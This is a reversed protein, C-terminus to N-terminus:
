GLVWTSLGTRKKIVIYMGTSSFVMSAATAIATGTIGWIPTFIFNLLVIVIMKLFAFLITVKENKTTISFNGLPGFAISIFQGIAIITLATQGHVFAPGLFSLVWKGCFVIVLFLPFSMLTVGRTIKTILKQLKERDNLAHLRSISATSIQNMMVQFIAISVAIRDAGSYIGVQSADKFFGLLLIDLKSNLSSLLTLLLLSKLSSKWVVSNYQPKIGEMKTTRFFVIAIFIFAAIFSIDRALVANWINFQFFCILLVLFFVPKIINDPLFSLVTKHQSRLWASYYNMFCYFPIAVVAYLIPFTYPSSVLAAIHFYYTGMLICAAILLPLAICIFLVLRSSWRYFGKWLEIKGTALLAASERLTMINIGSTCLSAILTIVTFSYTLIGYERAGLKRTLLLFTFVTLLAAIFHIFFSPLIVKLLKQRDNKDNLALGPINKVLRILAM